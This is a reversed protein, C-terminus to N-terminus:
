RSIAPQDVSRAYDALWCLRQWELLWVRVYPFNDQEDLDLNEERSILDRIVVAASKQVEGTYTIKGIYNRAAEKQGWHREVAAGAGPLVNAITM